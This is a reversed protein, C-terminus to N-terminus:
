SCVSKSKFYILRELKQILGSSLLELFRLNVEFKSTVYNRAEIAGLSDLAYSSLPQTVGM